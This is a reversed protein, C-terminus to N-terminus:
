EAVLSMLIFQCYVYPYRHITCCVKRAPHNRLVKDAPRVGLTTRRPHSRSKIESIAWQKHLLRALTQPVTEPWMTVGEEGLLLTTLLNPGADEFIITEVETLSLKQKCSTDEWPVVEDEPPNLRRRLRPPSEGRPVRSGRPSAGRSPRSGRPSADRPLTSGGGESADGESGPPAICM